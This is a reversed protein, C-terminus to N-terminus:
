FRSTPQHTSTGKSSSPVEVVEGEGVAFVRDGRRPVIGLGGTFSGFAPLVMAQPQVWFCRARLGPGRGSARRMVVAPHLHGCLTFEDTKREAPANSEESAEPPYHAFRIAGEDVDGWPENEVRMEWAAPLDGSATDHNGRILLMEVGAHRRRWAAAADIVGQVVGARAHLLDGLVVLRRVDHQQLLRTLRDLDAQTTEEPVPIASARFAATKGLHLDAVLLTRRRPWYVAREALLQWIEGAWELDVM